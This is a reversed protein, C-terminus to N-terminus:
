SELKGEIDNFEDLNLVPIADRKTIGCYICEWKPLEDHLTSMDLEWFHDCNNDEMM